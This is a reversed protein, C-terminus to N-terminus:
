DARPVTVTFTTGRGPVSEVEIRGGMAEVLHKVISLGLGTGGLERSRGADVRYFREFLRPLHTAEIGPGTDAVAIRAMRGDLVARVSVTGGESGYKVANEVLNNLVQELARADARLQVGPAIDSVLKIRRLEARERFVALVHETVQELFVNELRLRFQRSEIRSLDLLDEVLRQLREAQREIMAMFESTAEPGADEARRLTEAASRITAVPTRLEHSVNAVFDRRILELRRLETVDVFVALLGGREDPLAAAHLLLRRPKLDGVEIEGSANQSPGAAEDLLRKLEANRIIELPLKGALDQPLLLMERLAPNALVVRGDGDLLLVGEKMGDLVRSLLDREARLEDLAGALSAALQDLANGLEAVEDKGVLGARARLDGAAMRRAVSTLTRAAGAIGRAALSSMFVAVVLSVGFAILMLRRLRAIAEDVETLPKAVRVVGVMGRASAFRMSLYLMRQHVTTSWREGEGQGSALAASIEPRQGHNEVRELQEGDLQSDGLVVGDARVFTVRVAARPALEDALADWAALDDPSAGLAAADREILRLRAVLDDHVRQTLDQELAQSLYASAAAMSLVILGLSVLLLKGFIGLKL